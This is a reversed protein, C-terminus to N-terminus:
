AYAPPNETTMSQRFDKLRNRLTVETVGAADALISQTIHEGNITCAMYLVSAAYGMPNKGARKELAALDATRIAERKAKESLGAKNAIRIICLVPDIEPVKLDLELLVIRYMRALDNRKVNISASIEKLSLSSGLERCSIYICAGLLSSISRGRALRKENAKRYIYATKEVMAGSLNLRTKLRNLDDFARQLNRDSSSRSMGRSDWTRWRGIASRVTASLLAGKADRNERGIVTALGMDHRALSAPSGTRTKHDAEGAFNRWEPRTEVTKDSSVLGCKGCVNEGSEPDSIMVAKNCASCLSSFQM